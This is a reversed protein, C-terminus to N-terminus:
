GAPPLTPREDGTNTPFTPVNLATCAQMVELLGPVLRAPLGRVEEVSSFMPKGTEPDVTARVLIKFQVDKNGADTGAPTEYFDLLDGATLECVRVEAPWGKPTFTKSGFEMKHTAGNAAGNGETM